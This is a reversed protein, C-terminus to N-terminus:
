RPMTRALQDSAFEWNVLHNLVSQVFDIRRNQYDLYYAHEWVDVVLLPQHGHAIPTDANTTSIVELRDTGVVLWVWGSGFQNTAAEIFKKKFADFSGFDKDIKEALLGQPQGGGDPRLSQWFFEHNWAQATNNFIDAYRKQGATQKIIDMRKKNKFPSDACLRNAKDVYGGYHKHYHLSLAQESIYPALANEAYPLPMKKMVPTLGIRDCGDMMVACSVLAMMWPIWPRLKKKQFLGNKM